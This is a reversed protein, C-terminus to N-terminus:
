VFREPYTSAIAADIEDRTFHQSNYTYQDNLICQRTDLPVLSLTAKYYTAGTDYHHEEYLDVHNTLYPLLNILIKDLVTERDIPDLAHLTAQLQIPPQRTTIPRSYPM